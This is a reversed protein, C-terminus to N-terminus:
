IAPWQEKLHHFLGIPFSVEKKPIFFQGITLSYLCGYLTFYQVFFSNFGYGSFKGIAFGLLFINLINLYQLWKPANKFDYVQIKM